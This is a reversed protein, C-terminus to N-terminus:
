RSPSYELTSTQLQTDILLKESSKDVQVARADGRNSSRAAHQTVARGVCRTGILRPAMTQQRSGVFAGLSSQQCQGIRYGSQEGSSISNRRTRVDALLLDSKVPAREAFRDSFATAWKSVRGSSM